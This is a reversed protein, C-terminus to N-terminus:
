VDPRELIKRILRWDEIIESDPLMYVIYPPSVAVQRRRRRGGPGGAGGAGGGGAGWVEAAHREEEVRRMRERLEERLADFVMAKENQHLPFYTM